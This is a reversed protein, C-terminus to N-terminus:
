RSKQLDQYVTMEGNYVIIQKFTACDELYVLHLNIGGQSIEKVVSITFGSYNEKILSRTDQPMQDEPYTIITYLWNGRKNYVVRASKENMKFTAIIAKEESNWSLNSVNKFNKSLHNNVKLRAKAAKLNVEMEKIATKDVPDFSNTLATKDGAARATKDDANLDAFSIHTAGQANANSTILSTYIVGSLLVMIIKRMKKLKIQSYNKPKHFLAKQLLPRNTEMAKFANM